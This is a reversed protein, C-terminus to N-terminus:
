RPRTPMWKLFTSQKVYPHKRLNEFLLSRLSAENSEKKSIIQIIIYTISLNLPHYGWNGMKKRGNIPVGGDVEGNRLNKEWPGGISSQQSTVRSGGTSIEHGSANSTILKLSDDGQSTSVFVVQFQHLGEIIRPIYPYRGDNERM